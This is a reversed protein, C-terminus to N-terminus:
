PRRAVWVQVKSSEDFPARQFDGYVAEIDFGAEELLSRSQEPSMWSLQTRLYRREAVVGDADLDETCVLLDIRQQATDRSSIEWILREGGTAPDKVEARLFPICTPVPYDPDFVFHDFVFRGGAVLQGYINEAATRKDERTLLHGISHFPITVLRASEPLQFDRFDAHILALRDSVGAEEARSRCLELIKESYDVGFVRQGRKAVEICIRGNGVGLEVVPGPSACMLDIYFVKNEAAVPASECWADYIDAFEDYPVHKSL